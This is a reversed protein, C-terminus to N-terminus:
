LLMGHSEGIISGEFISPGDMEGSEAKACFPSGMIALPEGGKILLLVDASRKGSDCVSWEFRESSPAPRLSSYEFCVRTRGM